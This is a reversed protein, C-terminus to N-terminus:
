SKSLISAPQNIRDLVLLILCSLFSLLSYFLINLKLIKQLLPAYSHPVVKPHLTTRIQTKKFEKLTKYLNMAMDSIREVVSQFSNLILYNRQTLSFDSVLSKTKNTNEKKEQKIQCIVSWEDPRPHNYITRTL